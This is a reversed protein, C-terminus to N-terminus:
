PLDPPAAACPVMITPNARHSRAPAAYTSRGIPHDDTRNTNL